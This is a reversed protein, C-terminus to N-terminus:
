HKAREDQTIEDLFKIADTRDRKSLTMFAELIEKQIILSEDYINKLRTPDFPLLEDFKSECFAKVYKELISHILSPTVGQLNMINKVFPKEELTADAFFRELLRAQNGARSVALAVLLGSRTLHYYPIGKEQLAKPGRKLPLRGHEEVIGIPILVKDLDGFIGSYINKWAIKQEKAILKAIGTRTKEIPNERSSLISIIARQRVAEGTLNDRTKFTNFIALRTTKRM